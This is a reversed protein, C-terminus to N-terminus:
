APVAAALCDSNAEVSICEALYRSVGIRAGVVNLVMPDGHRIVEIPRNECIGLRKLRIQADRPGSIQDCLYQGAPQSALTKM